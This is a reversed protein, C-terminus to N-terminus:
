AINYSLQFTHFKFSKSHNYEKNNQFTILLQLSFFDKKLYFFSHSLSDCNSSLVNIRQYRHTTIKSSKMKISLNPIIIM